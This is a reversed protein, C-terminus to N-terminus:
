SAAEGAGLRKAVKLVTNWNRTTVNKGFADELFAMLDVTGRQPSLTIVSCVAGNAASLIRADGEPSAYPISLTQTRETERDGLFTVYLRTDPTVEIGAFPEADLLAQIEDASRVLVAIARGFSADLRQEIAIRLAAPEEEAAEFVVNGSNLLTTVDRFGLETFSRRLEEMTVQSKGGVNIGRLFAAYRM